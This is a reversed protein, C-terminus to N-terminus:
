MLLTKEFWSTTAAPKKRADKNSITVFVMHIINDITM